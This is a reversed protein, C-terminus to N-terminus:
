ANPEKPPINEFGSWEIPRTQGDAPDIGALVWGKSVLDALFHYFQGAGNAVTNADTGLLAATVHIQAVTAPYLSFRNGDEVAPKAEAAEGPTTM